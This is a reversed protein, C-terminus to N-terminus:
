AARYTISCTFVDGSAPVVPKNTDNFAQAVIPKPNTGTVTKQIYFEVKDSSIKIVCPYLDNQDNDFYSGVSVWESIAGSALVASPLAIAFAGSGASPGTGLSIQADLFVTKGIQCYSGSAAGGTGLSWGSGTGSITPTFSTYTLKGVSADISDGLTKIATAGNRVLDTSVPVTWGNNSTTAM